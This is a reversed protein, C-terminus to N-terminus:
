SNKSFMFVLPFNGQHFHYFVHTSLFVKESGTSSNPATVIVSPLKQMCSTECRKFAYCQMFLATIAFRHGLLVSSLIILIRIPQDLSANRSLNSNNCQLACASFTSSVNCFTSVLEVKQLAQPLWFIRSLNCSFNGLTVAGKPNLLKPKPKLIKSSYCPPILCPAILECSPQTM